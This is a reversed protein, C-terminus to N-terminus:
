ESMRHAAINEKACKEWVVLTELKDLVCMIHVESHRCVSSWLWCVDCEDISFVV